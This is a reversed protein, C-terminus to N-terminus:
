GGSFAWWARRQREDRLPPCPRTRKWGEVISLSACPDGRGACWRLGLPTLSLLLSVSVRSASATSLARSCAELPREDLDKWMLDDGEGLVIIGIRRYNNILRHLQTCRAQTTCLDVPERQQGGLYAIPGVGIQQRGVTGGRPSTRSRRRSVEDAGLRPLFRKDSRTLDPWRLSACRGAMRTDSVPWGDHRAVALSTTCTSCCGTITTAWGCCTCGCCRDTRSISLSAPM